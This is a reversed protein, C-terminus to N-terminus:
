AFGEHDLQQRIWQATRQLEDAVIEWPRGADPDQWDSTLRASDEYFREATADLIEAVQEPSEVDLSFLVRKPKPM